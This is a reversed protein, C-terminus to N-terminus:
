GCCIYESDPFGRRIVQWFHELAMKQAQKFDIDDKCPKILQLSETKLDYSIIGDLDDSERSYAYIIIRDSRELLKYKWRM